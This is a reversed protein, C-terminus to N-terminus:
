AFNFIPKSRDVGLVLPAEVQLNGVEVIVSLMGLMVGLAMDKGPCAHTTKRDGKADYDGGFLLESASGTAPVPDRTASVLGLVIKEGSNITIGTDGGVEYKKVCTRHLLGPVPQVRMAKIMASSLVRGAKQYDDGRKSKERLWDTQLHWLQKDDILTNMLSLFSGYTPTVFGQILGGLTRVLQEHDTIQKKLNRV